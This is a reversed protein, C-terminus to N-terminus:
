DDERSFDFKVRSAAWIVESFCIPTGDPLTDIARIVIVPMDPHQNLLRAELPKALRGILTTEGRMYDTIGYTRYAATISGQEERRQVFDPFRDVSHYTAGTSLPVDDAYTLRRTQYVQAGEALNLAARVRPSATCTAFGLLDGSVSIGQKLLNQRLRTRKGITYAILPAAEVFTGRGQEVSLKGEKALEAVARRVSHRGVGFKETLDAETPLRAGPELTGDAIDQAIQDRIRKWPTQTM